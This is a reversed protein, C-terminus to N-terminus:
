FYLVTLDAPTGGATVITLGTSFPLDYELAACNTMLSLIALLTGSAATNDYVTVTNGTGPSNVVIRQLKGSTTKVTTTASTAIHVGKPGAYFIKLDAM